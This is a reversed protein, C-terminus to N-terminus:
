LIFMMYFIVVYDIFSKNWSILQFLIQMRSKCKIGTNQSALIQDFHLWMVVSNGVLNVDLFGNLSSVLHTLLTWFLPNHLLYHLLIWLVLSSVPDRPVQFRTIKESHLPRSCISLVGLKAKSESLGNGSFIYVLWGFALFHHFIMSIFYWQLHLTKLTIKPTQIIQLAFKQSRENQVIHRAPVWTRTLSWTNLVRDLIKLGTEGRCLVLCFIIVTFYFM